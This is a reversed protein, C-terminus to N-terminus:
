IPWLTEARTLIASTEDVGMLRALNEDSGIVRVPMQYARQWDLWHM